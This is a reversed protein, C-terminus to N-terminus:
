TLSSRLKCNIKIDFIYIDSKTYRELPQIFSNLSNLM